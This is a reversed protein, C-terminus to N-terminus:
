GGAIGDFDIGTKNSNSITVTVPTTFYTCMAAEPEVDYTGNQLNTFSYNGGSDSTTTATADGSLEVTINDYCESGDGSLTGSISFTSPVVTSSFNIGSKDADKISINTKSPAFTYGSKSPKVTYSGTFLGAFSYSGDSSTSTNKTSDGTLKVTVGSKINGSVAGSVTYTKTASFDIGLEDGGAITVSRSTPSFVHGALSPMVTYTGNDLGEFSYNGNSDTTTTASANDSLTMTIGEQVNGDVTGSILYTEPTVAAVFDIETKDEDTIIVTQNEPAFIYGTKQPTITYTGNDLGEFIYNGDTGTTTNDSIPGTLLLNVGKQVAGSVSGSISLLPQCPGVGCLFIFSSIFLLSTIINTYSKKM